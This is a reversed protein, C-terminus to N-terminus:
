LVWSLRRCLAVLMRSSATLATPGSSVAIGSTSSRRAECFVDWVSEGDHPVTSLVEIQCLRRPM